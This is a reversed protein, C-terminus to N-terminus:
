LGLAAVGRVPLGPAALGIWASRGILCGGRHGRRADVILAAVAALAVVALVVWGVVPARDAVIALVGFAILVLGGILSAPSFWSDRTRWPPVTAPPCSCARPDVM